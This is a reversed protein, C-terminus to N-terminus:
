FVRTEVAGFICKGSINIRPAEEKGNFNSQQSFEGFVAIGSSELTVAKTAIIEVNAFICKIDIHITESTFIAETFDLVVHGFIAKIKIRAPVKWRGTKKSESFISILKMPLGSSTKDIQVEASINTQGKEAVATNFKLLPQDKIDATGEIQMRYIVVPESINKLNVPGVRLIKDRYHNQLQEYVAQSFCIGGPDALPQLRAAINVGNGFVDNEKIVTEGLHVGIRVRLVSGGKSSSAKEALAEQIQIAAHISSLCSDFVALIADGVTKIIKGGNKEIIPFLLSNHEELLHLTENENMQMMRSYGHIDTFMIAMLKRIENDTQIESM